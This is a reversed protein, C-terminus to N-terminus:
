AHMPTWRDQIYASSEVTSLSFGPTNAFTIQRTVAGNGDVFDVTGRNIQAHYLVRDARGGVTFQHTGALKWPRLYLNAFGQTRHFYKREHCFLKRHAGGAGSRVFAVRRCLRRKTAISGEALNRLTDRAITIQDKLGLLYLYNHNHVSVSVPDFASIGSNQSDQMNLLANATLVNGPTLNM